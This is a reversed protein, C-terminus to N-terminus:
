SSPAPRICLLATRLRSLRSGHRLDGRAGVGAPRACERRGAQRRLHPHLQSHQRALRAAHADEGGVQHHSVAGLSLAVPVPRHDDLGARLGHEDVRHWLQRRTSSARGDILCSPLNPMSVGTERRTPMPWRRANSRTHRFGMHYLKSAQASLCAEIDRLSERYTLQAFAMVRFQDACTLLKVYRRRRAVIRHFTWPLFDMLQAFLTKGINM